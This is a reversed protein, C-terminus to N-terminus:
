YKNSEKRFVIFFSLTTDFYLSKQPIAITALKGEKAVRLSINKDLSFIQGFITNNSEASPNEIYKRLEEKGATIITSGLLKSLGESFDSSNVTSKYNEAFSSIFADVDVWKQFSTWDHNQISGQIQKVSYLPTDRYIFYYIFFLACLVVVTSCTLIIPKKM